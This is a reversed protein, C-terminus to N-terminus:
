TSLILNYFHWLSIKMSITYICLFLLFLLFFSPLYPVSDNQVDLLIFQPPYIFSIITPFRNLTSSPTNYSVIITFSHNKFIIHRWYIYRFYKLLLGIYISYITVKNTIKGNVLLFKLTIFHLKEKLDLKTQATSQLLSQVHHNWVATPKMCYLFFFAFM